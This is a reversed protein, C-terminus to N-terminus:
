LYSRKIVHSCSTRTEPCIGNISDFGSVTVTSFHASLNKPNRISV